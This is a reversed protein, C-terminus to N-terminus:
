GEINFRTHLMWGQSGDVLQDGYDLTLQLDRRPLWSISGSGFTERTRSHEENLTSVKVAFSYKETPSWSVGADYRMESLENEQSGDFRTQQRFASALELQLSPALQYRSKLDLVERDETVTAYDKFISANRYSSSWSLRGGGLSGDLMLGYTSSENLQRVTFPQDMAYAYNMSFNALQNFIDSKLRADFTQSLGTGALDSDATLQSQLQYDLDVEFLESDLALGLGSGLQAAKLEQSESTVLESRFLRPEISLKLEEGQGYSLSCSGALGLGLGTLLLFQTATQKLAIGYYTCPPTKARSLQPM